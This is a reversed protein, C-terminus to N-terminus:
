HNEKRERDTTEKIREDLYDRRLRLEKIYEHGWRGDKYYLDFLINSLKVRASTLAKM